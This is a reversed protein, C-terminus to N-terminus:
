FTLKEYYDYEARSIFGLEKLVDKAVTIEFKRLDDSEKVKFLTLKKTLLKSSM